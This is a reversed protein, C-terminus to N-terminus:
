IAQHLKLMDGWFAEDGFTDSRFIQRGDSIMKQVNAGIEDDFVQIRLGQGLVVPQDQARGGSNSITLFAIVSFLIALVSVLTKGQIGTVGANDTATVSKTPTTGHQQGPQASEDFPEFANGM